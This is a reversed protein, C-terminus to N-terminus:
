RVRLERQLVSLRGKETVKVIYAGKAGLAVGFTVYLAGSSGLTVNMPSDLKRKTAMGAKPKGRKKLSGAVVSLVGDSGVKGVVAFTGAGGRIGNSMGIYVNGARDVDVSEAIGLYSRTAQRGPKPRGFGGRGAVISLQGGPTVKEVFGYDGADAIYLNGERDVAIDVPNGLRSETAPGPTPWGEKGVQGAVISLTGRPTIKAVVDLSWDVVYVNRRSDVALADPCTLRTSTAKGPKPKGKKGVQGAIVSLRGRPSVKTVVRNACDAIYLNGKADLAIDSITSFRAKTAKGPKPKGRQASGAVHTVKGSTSRRLVVTSWTERPTSLTAAFYVNGKADVASVHPSYSGKTTLAKGDYPAAANAPALSGTLALALLAGIAIV